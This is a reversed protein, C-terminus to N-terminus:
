LSEVKERAERAIAACCRHGEQRGVNQWTRCIETISLGTTPRIGNCDPDISAQHPHEEIEKLAAEYIALKRQLCEILAEREMREVSYRHLREDHEKQSRSM